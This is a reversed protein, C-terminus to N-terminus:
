LGIGRAMGAAAVVLLVVLVAQVVSIAALRHAPTTDIASGRALAIRWRILTTMPWLELLLILALIGMKTWFLGNALYYASGKELGGFARWLGTGILVVASIGWLSDARFVQSLARRDLQGRLMSARWSISGMALAMALLHLASVMWRLIM